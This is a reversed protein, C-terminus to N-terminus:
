GDSRANLLCQAEQLDDVGAGALKLANLEEGAMLAEEELVFLGQCTKKLLGGGIRGAAPRARRRRMRRGGCTRSGMFCLFVVVRRSVKDPDAVSRALEVVGMNLEEATNSVGNADLNAGCGWGRIKQVQQASEIRGALRALNSEDCSVTGALNGAQQGLVDASDLVRLVAAANDPLAIRHVAVGQGGRGTDFSAAEVVDVAFKLLGEADVLLLAAVKSTDVKLESAISNSLAHTAALTKVLIVQRGVIGGEAIRAEVLFLSKLKGKQHRVMEGLLIFPGCSSCAYIMTFFLLNHSFSVSKPKGKVFLGLISHFSKPSLCSCM